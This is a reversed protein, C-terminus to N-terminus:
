SVWGGVLVAAAAVADVVAFPKELKVPAEFPLFRGV